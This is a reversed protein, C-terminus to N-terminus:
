CRGRFAREPKCDMDEALEGAWEPGGEALPLSSSSVSSTRGGVLSRRPDETPERGLEAGPDRRPEDALRGLISARPDVAGGGKLGASFCLIAQTPDPDHAVASALIAAILAALLDSMKSDCTLMHTRSFSTRKKKGKKKKKEEGQRGEGERRDVM